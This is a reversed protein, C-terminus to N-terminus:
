INSLCFVQNSLSYATKIGGRAISDSQQSYRRGEILLLAVYEKRKFSYNWKKHFM